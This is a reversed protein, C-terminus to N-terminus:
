SLAEAIEDAVRKAADLPDRADRIPRGIVVYDAGNEVAAAPTVIRKQDDEGVTTWAPRIGPTVVTLERGLAARITAVEHGSCVVGHCGAEMALRARVLALQSLDDIVERTYGLRKLNATYDLGLFHCILGRIVGAHVVVLVTEDGHHPIRSLLFNVSREQMQRFSEGKPFVFDPDTKYQPINRAVWKKSKKFLTGYNIEKLEAADRILHIGRQRAYYMATQRARELDSSYVRDIAIGLEELRKNVWALDKEWDEVRPSDGWGMILDSANILTKYHRVVIARM